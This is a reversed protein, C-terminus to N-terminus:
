HDVSDMPVDQSGADSSDSGSDSSDSVVDSTADAHHIVTADVTESTSNVCGVLLVLALFKM